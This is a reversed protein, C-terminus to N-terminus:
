ALRMRSQKGEHGSAQQRKEGGRGGGGSDATEAAIVREVASRDCLRPNELLHLFMCNINNNVRSLVDVGKSISSGDEVLYRRGAGNLRLIAGVNSPPNHLDICPFSELAYNKKLLAAMQKDEDDTLTTMLALRGCGKLNLFKLTTNHQLATIFFFYEEAKIRIRYGNNEITLSELSANEQLMVAIHRCLADFCSTSVDRDFTVMLSKLAKNTRLFSLAKYWLASNEDLLRDNLVLSELTENMGLGEKMATSLSEGMSCEAGVTLTKLGTNKGLALFVPSFDTDDDLIRSSLVLDQLTSNSPLAAALAGIIEEDFLSEVEIYTVSTNRSLGNALIARCEGAPFSCDRLELRTIVTGEMLANATAQILASTFHFDNLCVSRLTPVRLLGALSEPIALIIEDEMRQQERGLKVSELAPLTALASYLTDLSEYPFNEGDEFRTITPHGHIARAFKNPEEADWVSIIDADDIDLTIRQRVHSLIRAVIEWDVILLDEDEIYCKGICVRKLAKLNSVARGVKDWVESDHDNASYPRLVLTEVSKNGQSQNVFCDVHYLIWPISDVNLRLSNKKSFFHDDAYKEDVKRNQLQAITEKSYDGM